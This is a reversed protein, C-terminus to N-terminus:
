MRPYMLYTANTTPLWPSEDERTHQRLEALEDRQAQMTATADALLGATFTVVRVTVTFLVLVLVINVDTTLRSAPERMIVVTVLQWLMGVWALVAAVAGVIVYRRRKRTM